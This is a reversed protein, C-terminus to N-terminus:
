PRSRGASSARRPRANRVSPRGPSKRRRLLRLVALEDARTPLGGSRGPGASRAAKAGSSDLLDPHIYSSRAVAPTNGLGAAVEKVAERIHEEAPGAAEAAPVERLARFALMTGAWTRLDKASFREDGLASRLYDNVDASDIPQTEGDDNVYEFLAQGPLDQCRRVVAALRRDAVAVEALRGGKGRFRFRIEGARVTAHRNRLTSLGFSRNLRAYEENGVRLFTLEMLRVVAAIVKERPLGERRLDGRVRRRLAPLRQGFPILREFKGEDRRRRFAAHYRYQKRGRADRGTAQVHARPDPAIWVDTWAPPIALARIRALTAGDTVRRGDADLYAFGRGQRRRALGPGSDTLYRLGARDADRAAGSTARLGSTVCRGWIARPPGDPAGGSVRAAFPSPRSEAPSPGPSRATM